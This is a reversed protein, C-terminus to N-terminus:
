FTSIVFLGDEFVVVVELEVGDLDLGGMTHWRGGPEPICRTASVLGARVDQRSIRRQAMRLLAHGSYRIQNAIAYRRIERLAQEPDM